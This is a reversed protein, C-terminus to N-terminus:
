GRRPQLVLLLKLFLNNGAFALQVHLGHQGSECTVHRRADLADIGICGQGGQAIPCSEVAGAPALEEVGLALQIGHYLLLEDLFLNLKVAGVMDVADVDEVLHNGRTPLRFVESAHATLHIFRKLGGVRLGFPELHSPQKPVLTLIPLDVVADLGVDSRHRFVSM